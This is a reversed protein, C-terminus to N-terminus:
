DMAIGAAKIVDSVLFFSGIVLIVDRKGTIEQAREIADNVTGAIHIVAKMDLRNTRAYKLLTEPVIAREYDPKTLIIFDALDALAKLSAKYDKDKMMGFIVVLKGFKRLLPKASTMAAIIGDPNHSIDLIWHKNRHKLFELRCRYGTNKKVKMLGKKFQKASVPKYGTERFFVEVAAIATVANRVQYDGALPIEFTDRSGPVAFLSGNWNTDMIRYGAIEDLFFIDANTQRDKFISRLSRHADSIVAPVGPKLIAAKEKAIEKMTRGLYDTHDIAIETIVSVVPKIINTSDLRGGLGAEIVAVDVKNDAFYKLAIATNVEFFSPRVNKILKKNKEVFGKIYKDPITKGNIRIRENFKLIHPSTFLGTKFGNEQLISSAFSAVAGKGNTGAIHVIKLKKHPNGLAAMLRTINDLSYKMGSRELKYLNDLIDYIRNVALRLFVLSCAGKNLLEYRLFCPLL